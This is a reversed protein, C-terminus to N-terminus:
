IRVAFNICFCEDYLFLHSHFGHKHQVAINMGFSVINLVHLKHTNVYMLFLSM